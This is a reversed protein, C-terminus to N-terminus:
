WWAQRTGRRDPHFPGTPVIEEDGYFVPLRVFDRTKINEPEM